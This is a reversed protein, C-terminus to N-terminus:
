ESELRGILNRIKLELANELWDPDPDEPKELVWTEGEIDAPLSGIGIVLVADDIQDENFDGPAGGAGSHRQAMRDFLEGSRAGIRGDPSVFLIPPLM